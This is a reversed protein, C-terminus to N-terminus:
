VYEGQEYKIIEKSAVLLSESLIARIPDTDDLGELVQKLDDVENKIQQITPHIAKLSAHTNSILHQYKELGNLVRDIGNYILSNFPRDQSLNLSLSKPPIIQTENVNKGSIRELVKQFDEVNGTHKTGKTGVLYINRLKDDHNVRM